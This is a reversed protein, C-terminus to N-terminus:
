NKRTTKFSLTDLKNNELAFKIQQANPDKELQKIIEEELTSIDTLTTNEKDENNLTNIFLTEPLLIIQIFKKDSLLIQEPDDDANKLFYMRSM